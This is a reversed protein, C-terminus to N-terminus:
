NNKAGQDIWTKITDIKAQPIRDRGHPMQISPDARGEILVVLNSGLSDGPIIMPGNRTGRMLSAYNEMSLGSAVQGQGGERHCELCYQDLIPKVDESYSVTKGKCATLALPAAALALIRLLRSKRINMM